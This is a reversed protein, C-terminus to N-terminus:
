QFLIQGSEQRANPLLSLDKSASRFYVTATTSFGEISTLELKGGSLEALHQSLSLGIGLGEQESKLSSAKSYPDFIHALKEKSIGIGYDQVAVVIFGDDAYINIVVEGDPLSFKIANHLLNFLIQQAHKPDGFGWNDAIDEEVLLKIGKRNAYPTIFSVTSKVTESISINRQDPRIQGVEAKSLDTFDSVLKLIHESFDRLHQISQAQEADIKEEIMVSITEISCIVASMPNSIEHAIQKVLLGQKSMKRQTEVLKLRVEQEAKASEKLLARNRRVSIVVFAISLIIALLDLILLNFGSLSFIAIYLM